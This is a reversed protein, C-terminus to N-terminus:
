AYPERRGPLITRTLQNVSKEELIENKMLQLIVSVVEMEELFARVNEEVLLGISGPDAARDVTLTIRGDEKESNVLIEDGFGSNDVSVGVYWDDM